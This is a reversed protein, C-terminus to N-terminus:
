SARIGRMLVHGWVGLTVAGAMIVAIHAAIVPLLTSTTGLAVSVEDLLWLSFGAVVGLGLALALSPKRGVLLALGAGLAAAVLVMLPLTHRRYLELRHSVASQGLKERARLSAELASYSLREPNGLSQVFDEPADSIAIPLSSTRTTTLSESDGFTRHVVQEGVWGQRGYRLRGMDWRELVQGDEIRLMLVGALEKGQRDQLDDIRFIRDRGRFWRHSGGLRDSTRDSLGLLRRQVAARARAEPAVWENMAAFAIALGFGFLLTPKLVAWPSAGASLIAAVEGRRLFGAVTITGGVLAVVAAMQQVMAPINFLQLKLTDLLSADASIVSGTEVLDVAFFLTIAAGFALGTNLMLGRLFLRGFIGTWRASAEVRSM